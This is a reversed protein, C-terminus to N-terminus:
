APKRVCGCWPYDEDTIHGYCHQSSQRRRPQRVPFPALFLGTSAPSFTISLRLAALSSHGAAKIVGSLQKPEPDSAQLCSTPTSGLRPTFLRASRLHSIKGQPSVRSNSSRNSPLCFQRLKRNWIKRVSWCHRPMHQWRRVRRGTLYRRLWVCLVSRKGGCIKQKTWQLIINKTPPSTQEFNSVPFKL